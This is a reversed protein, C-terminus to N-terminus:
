RAGGGAPVSTRRAALAGAATTVRTEILASFGTPLALAPAGPLRMVVRGGAVVSVEGGEGVPEDPGLFRIRVDGRWPHGTRRAFAPYLEVTLERGAMSDPLPFRLRGFAYNV